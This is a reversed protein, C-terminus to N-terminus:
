SRLEEIIRSRATRGSATPLLPYVHVGAEQEVLEVEVGATRAKDALLRADPNLIDRTGMFVLMRGLGHMTGALPSVVPDTIPLGAAWMSGLHRGGPIALWPDSPQVRLMDPNSFGLDLAPRILVTRVGSVGRDRLTLAASLALQGGASDGALVVEQETSALEQYLTTVLRNAQLATGHPLLTWIPVSVAVRAQVAMQFVLQWHQRSIEHVWGGGHAVIVQRVATASPQITYVPVDGRGEVTITVGPPLKQPPM